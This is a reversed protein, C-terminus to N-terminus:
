SATCSRMAAIPLCATHAISGEDYVAVSTTSGGIDVLAVGQQREQDELVSTASAICELVIDDVQVGAGEVCKTLNQIASVAGSVIHVECDLRGGWMGVPDSVPETGEIWYGRPVVHIVQRNTPIAVQGASDLVRSRDDETIARSRDPIAIIGRNNQSSIHGGSIGVVASLIRMGCAQEAKEVAM